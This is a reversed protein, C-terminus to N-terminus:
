SPDRFVLRARRIAIRLAAQSAELEEPRGFPVVNQLVVRTVGAEVYAGVADVLATPDGVVIGETLEGLGTPALLAGDLCARAVAPDPHIAVPLAVGLRGVVGADLAAKAITEASAAVAIWGCGGRAAVGPHGGVTVLEIRTEDACSAALEGAGPADGDLAVVCRGPALDALTLVTRRSRTPDPGPDWGLVGVRVGRAILVAAAATIMPDALDTPDPVVRAIAGGHERWAVPSVPVPVEAPFWIAHAGDTEAGLAAGVAIATARFPPGAAGIEVM